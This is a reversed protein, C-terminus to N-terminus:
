YVPDSNISGSVQGLAYWFIKYLGYGFRVYLNEEGTPKHFTTALTGTKTIGGTTM